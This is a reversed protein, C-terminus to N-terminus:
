EVRRFINVLYADPQVPANDQYTSSSNSANLTVAYPINGSAASHTAGNSSAGKEISLAGFQNQGSTGGTTTGSMTGSNGTINPLSEALETGVAGRTGAGQLVRDEAVLEWTGIGLEALPCTETTSIYISGVPYLVNFIDVSYKKAEEAYKQCAERDEKTKCSYHYASYINDM